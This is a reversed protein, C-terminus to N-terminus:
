SNFVARTLPGFFGTAAVGHAKQFKRVAAKTLPGYYGTVPGTFYGSEKLRTQLAAVEEGRSGVGMNSSFLLTFGANTSVGLVQGPPIFGGPNAIFQVPFGIPPGPPVIGSTAPTVTIFPANSRGGGTSRGSGSNCERVVVSRTTTATFSGSVATYTLTYTGPTTVNVSGTTTATLSNGASDVATVGPDVFGQTSSANCIFLTVNPDGILTIIPSSTATSTAANSHTISLATSASVNGAADSATVSLNNTSSANLGVVANWNGSGNVTSTATASGGTVSVTYSAEATGYITIPSTSTAYPTTPFTVVPASPAISDHTIEVTTTASTEGGNNVSVVALNNLANATLNVSLAWTGSATSSAMTPSAGGTVMITTSADATGTLVIPNTSTAQAVTTVVPQTPPAAWVSGGSWLLSFTLATGAALAAGQRLVPNTTMNM